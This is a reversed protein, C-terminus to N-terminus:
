EGTNKLRGDYFAVDLILAGVEDQLRENEVELEAIRDKLSQVEVYNHKLVIEMNSEHEVCKTCFDSM